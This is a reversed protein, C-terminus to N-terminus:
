RMIQSVAAPIELDDYLWAYIAAASVIKRGYQRTESYPLTELFLDDSLHKVNNFEIRASKQWRRVVTIGANYAFFTPIWENELRNYLHQIYWAGFELNDDPDHLDYDNYKLRHAIDDATPKMLQSLGQAGASSGVTAEFFSESRIIAYFINEPIQYKAAKASVLASYDRPFLLALDERSLPKNSKAAVKVALRLSQTYFENKNDGCDKLFRALKMGADYGILRNERELRLFLPYIREPLGYAAYGAIVDEAEADVELESSAATNCVVEAAADGGYGLKQLAMVRYYMESGSCLARTFAADSESGHTDTLVPIMLKEQILRGYIYAFRATVENSAYGDLAKYLDHFENWLAESLMLPTLTDFFDDFYSADHWSDCYQKVCAIGRSTSRKLELNLLYWLANDYQSDSPACKMASKYRNAAYSFYEGAKEYLRASYFWAYFESDKGSLKKALSDFALANKYYSDSGYLCVKGIDSVIQPILPLVDPSERYTEFAAKYNRKYVDTRFDLVPLIEQVQAVASDKVLQCYLKYHFSSVARTTFWAYVEKSLRSDNKNLMADLRLYALQNSCTQYDLDNTSQILRTYEGSSSYHPCASLLADEDGYKKILADCAELRERVNGLATLEEMCLRVIYPSSTKEAKKLLRKAEATNGESQRRLAVYYYSNNQSCSSFIFAAM